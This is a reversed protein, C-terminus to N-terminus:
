SCFVSSRHYRRCVGPIVALGLWGKRRMGSQSTKRGAEFLLSRMSAIPVTVYSSLFFVALWPRSIVSHTKGPIGSFM